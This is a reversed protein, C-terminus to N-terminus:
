TLLRTGTHSHPTNVAKNSMLQCSLFYMPRDVGHLEQMHDIVTVVLIQTNGVVKCNWDQPTQAVYCKVGHPGCIHVWIQLYGRTGVLGLGM